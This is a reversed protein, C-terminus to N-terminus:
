RVREYVIEMSKVRQGDRIEWMTMKHRSPNEIVILEEGRASKGTMPDTNTSVLEFTKGDKSRPGRSLMLSTSMSDQWTGYYEGAAVDFGWTGVGSFPQGGMNGSFRQELHHGDLIWSNTMTGTSVDPPGNPDWWSTVAANWTGVFADLARHEDGPTAARQWAAMMEEQSPQSSKSSTSSCGVALLSLFTIPVFLKHMTTLTAPRHTLVFRAAACLM